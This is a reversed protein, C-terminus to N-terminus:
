LSIGVLFFFLIMERSNFILTLYQHIVRFFKYIKKHNIELYICNKFFFVIYWIKATSKHSSFAIILMKLESLFFTKLNWIQSIKYCIKM